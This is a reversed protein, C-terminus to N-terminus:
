PSWDHCLSHLNIVWLVSIRQKLLHSYRLSIYWDFFCSSSKYSEWISYLRFSVPVTLPIEVWILQVYHDVSSSLIRLSFTWCKPVYFQTIIALNKGPRRPLCHRSRQCLTMSGCITLRSHVWYSSRNMSSWCLLIPELHDYIELISM